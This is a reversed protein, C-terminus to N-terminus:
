QTYYGQVNRRVQRMDVYDPWSSYWELFEPISDFLPRRGYLTTPNEESAEFFVVRWAWDNYRSDTEEDGIVRCYAYASYWLDENRWGGCGTLFGVKVELDGDITGHLKVQGLLSDELYGRLAVRQAEVDRLGEVGEEEAYEPVGVYLGPMFSAIGSRRFDPDSVGNAYKLFLLLEECPPIEVAEQGQSDDAVAASCVEHFTKQYMQRWAETRLRPPCVGDMYQHYLSPVDALRKVNRVEREERVPAPGAISNWHPDPGGKGLKDWYDRMQVLKDAETPLHLAEIETVRDQLFRRNSSEMKQCFQSLADRMAADANSKIESM